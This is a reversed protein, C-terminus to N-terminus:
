FFVRDFFRQRSSRRPRTEGPVSTRRVPSTGRITRARSPELGTRSSAHRANAVDGRARTRSTGDSASSLGAQREARADLKALGINGGHRSRTAVATSQEAVPLLARSARSSLGPTATLTCGAGGKRRAREPERPLTPAVLEDGDNFYIRRTMKKAGRRRQPTFGPAALLSMMYSYDTLRIAFENNQISRTQRQTISFNFVWGMKKKNASRLTNFFAARAPHHCLAPAGPRRRWTRRYTSGRERSEM